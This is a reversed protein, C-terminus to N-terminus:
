QESREKDSEVKALQRDALNMLMQGEGVPVEQNREVSYRGPPLHEFVTEGPNKASFFASHFRLRDIHWDVDDFTQLQILVPQKPPKGPLDCHLALSGAPPLKIVVNDGRPLSKRSVVWFRPDSSIVALRNAPGRSREISFEGKENTRTTPPDPLKGKETPVVFWARRDADVMIQEAGLLLVEANAVAVGEHSVVQGKVVSKEPWEAPAPETKARDPRKEKAPTEKASKEKGAGDEGAVQVAPPQGAAYLQFIWAAGMVLFAVLTAAFALKLKSVQMAKLVGETLAAVNASVTSAAKAEGVTIAASQLTAGALASPVFAAAAGHSLMAPFLAASLVLGRRGLRARLLERGRELRRALTALSWGFHQAAEDRTKGQLYCLVLPGRYQSPLTALEGDLAALLERASFEDLPDTGQKPVMASERTRRKAAAVKARSAARYAVGYLWNALLERKGISGAKRILVLFTAQFADEVLHQDALVRRCVNLVMQGHRAVLLEFAAEDRESIFRNLLEQDPADGPYDRAAVKRFHEIVAGLRNSAM